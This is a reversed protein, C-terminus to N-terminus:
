LVKRRTAKTQVQYYNHLGGKQQANKGREQLFKLTIEVVRNNENNTLVNGGYDTTRFVNVNTVNHALTEVRKTKTSWRLMTNNTHHYYIVFTNTNTGPFIQLANGVQPTDDPIEKFVAHDGTGVQVIACGRIEERLTGLVKRSQDTAELSLKTQYFMRLGFIHSGCAAGIVLILIAMGMQLEVLTSALTSARSRRISRIAVTRM